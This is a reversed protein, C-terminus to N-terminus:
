GNNASIQDYWDAIEKGVREYNYRAIANQSIAERDYKNKNDIFEELKTALAYPDDDPAFVANVDNANEHFVPIDSLIVPLGSAFAEIVVCGFTEYRSYLVLADANHILKVLEAQPMEHHFVVENELQDQKVLAKLEPKDPGVVDLKFQYENDRLLRFAEFMGEPNKQYELTSIHIFRTLSGPQQEKYNFIDSNVVNPIRLPKEIGFLKKLRNGLYDSVVMVQRAGKYIKKIQKQFLSPLSHINPRSEDLYMTSQESVVYPIHFTNMIWLGLLGAKFAIYVHVLSPKGRELFLNNIAQKHLRLYKRQSLWRTLLSSFTKPQYYYIITERLNGNDKVEKLVDKTFKGEEDKIVHIVEIKKYLAAAQAHRQVFDGNYPQVKNPYWSPLWLIYDSRNEM